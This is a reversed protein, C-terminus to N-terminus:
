GCIRILMMKAQRRHRLVFKHSFGRGEAGRSGLLPTETISAIISAIQWDYHTHTHTHAVLNIHGLQNAIGALGARM